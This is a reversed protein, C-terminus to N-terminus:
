ALLGLARYTVPGAVGDPELGFAEQFAKLAAETRPGFEGDATIELAQQLKAVWPGSSGRRVVEFEVRPTEDAPEDDFAGAAMELGVQRVGAVRRTWGRGFVSFTALGRLFVLRRDCMDNVIAAPEHTAVRSLTSPGIGGDRVAGVAAQLWVASRGPGSNVAADFVAYDVGSPLQDCRCKDWYGSRYIKQLQSDTINKLDDVTKDPGFHRRFTALTVGKMTAGGPDRPHDVFGGEHVLVHKLSKKFNKKM